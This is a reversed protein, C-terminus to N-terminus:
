MPSAPRRFRFNFQTQTGYKSKYNDAILKRNDTLSPDKGALDGRLQGSIVKAM